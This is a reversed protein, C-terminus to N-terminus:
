ARLRKSSDSLCAKEEIINRRNWHSPPCCCSESLATEGYVRQGIDECNGLGAEVGESCGNCDDWSVEARCLLCIAEHLLSQQCALGTEGDESERVGSMIGTSDGSGSIDTCELLIFGTNPSGEQRLSESSGGWLVRMSNKKLGSLNFLVHRRIELYGRLKQEQVFDQFGINMWCNGRKEWGMIMCIKKSM